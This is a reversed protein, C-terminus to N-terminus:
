GSMEVFAFLRGRVLTVGIALQLLTDFLTVVIERAGIIYAQWEASPVLDKMQFM